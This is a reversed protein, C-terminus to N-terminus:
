ATQKSAALQATLQGLMKRARDREALLKEAHQTMLGLTKRARDREETLQGKEERLDNVEKNQRNMVEERLKATSLLPVAQDLSMGLTNLDRERLRKQDLLAQALEQLAILQPNLCAYLRERSQAEEEERRLDDPCPKLEPGFLDEFSESLAEEQTQLLVGADRVVALVLALAALSQQREQELEPLSKIGAVSDQDDASM